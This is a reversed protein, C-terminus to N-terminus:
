YEYFVQWLLLVICLKETHIQIPELEDSISRNQLLVLFINKPKRYSQQHHQYQCPSSQHDKGQPQCQYGLVAELYLM